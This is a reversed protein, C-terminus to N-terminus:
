CIMRTQCHGESAELLLVSRGARTVVTALASGGIGGGVVALDYFAM